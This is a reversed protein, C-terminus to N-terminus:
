PSCISRGTPPWDAAPFVAFWLRTLWAGLPPHKPYGFALDRSWAVMETMDSHMDQSAKALVGYLTWVAVYVVLVVLATRERRAPDVLAALLREAPATLRNFLRATTM